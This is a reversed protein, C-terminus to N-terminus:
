EVNPNQKDDVYHNELARLEYTYIVDHPLTM